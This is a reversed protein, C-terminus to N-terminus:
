SMKATEVNNNSMGYNPDIEMLAGHMCIELRGRSPKIAPTSVNATALLTLSIPIKGSIQSGTCIKANDRQIAEIELQVLEKRLENTGEEKLGQLKKDCQAIHELLCTEKMERIEISPVKGLVNLAKSVTSEELPIFINEGFYYAAHYCLIHLPDADDPVDILKFKDCLEVLINYFRDLDSNIKVFAENLKGRPLSADKKRFKEVEADKDSVLKKLKVLSTEDSEGVFEKISSCLETTASRQKESLVPNRFWGVTYSQDAVYSEKISKNLSQLILIKAAKIFITM